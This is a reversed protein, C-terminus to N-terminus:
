RLFVENFKNMVAEPKFQAVRNSWDEKNALERINNMKEWLNNESYLLNSNNLVKAHHLDNGGEWALVPKNLFLAEAVALGFSEGDRRAHIMADWTNIINSKTQLDHVPNLFRVNPHNIWPETGMFVFVFDDRTDLLYAIQKQVFGLDFTFQGGHRGFIFQDPRIGWDKRFNYNPSPSPLNVIHPVWPLSAQGNRQAMTDALWESVYAYRDGHPQYNQFVSHVGTKCNDPLFEINGARLFYAFDIKEHDIIKKLDDPGQHGIIKFTKELGERVGPDTGKNGNPRTTADYCIISENGLIEQNYRAYDTVSVTTGRIDLQNNHFLIKM